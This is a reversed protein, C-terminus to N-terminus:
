EESKKVMSAIDSWDYGLCILSTNAFRWISDCSEIVALNGIELGL